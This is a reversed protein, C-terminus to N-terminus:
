GQWTFGNKMELAIAGGLANLGFVPNSGLLNTRNIARDPIVDWNVTDGFVENIRVGNQYVALGQPTGGLPSATFGRYQVDPQFTNDQTENISVAGIRDQLTRTLDPSGERQLDRASVSRTASPVKDRDVGSGLLPSTGIVETTPLTTAPEAPQATAAAPSVLLAAAALAAIPSPQPM